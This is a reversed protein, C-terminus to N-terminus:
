KYLMEHLDELPWHTLAGTICKYLVEVQNHSYVQVYRAGKSALGDASVTSVLVVSM